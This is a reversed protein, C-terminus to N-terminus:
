GKRYTFMHFSAFETQASTRLLIENFSIIRVMKHVVHCAKYLFKLIYIIVKNFVLAVSFTKLIPRKYTIYFILKFNQLLFEKRINNLIFKM